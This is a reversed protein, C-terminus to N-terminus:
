HLIRIVSHNILRGPKYLKFIGQTKSDMTALHEVDQSEINTKEQKKIKNNTNKNTIKHWLYNNQKEKM